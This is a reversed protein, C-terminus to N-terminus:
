FFVLWLLKSVDSTSILVQGCAGAYLPWVNAKRDRLRCEHFVSQTESPEAFSTSFLQSMKFIGLFIFPHEFQCFFPRSSKARSRLSEPGELCRTQLLFAASTPTLGQLLFLANSKYKFAIRITLAWKLFYALYVKPSNVQLSSSGLLHFLKINPKCASIEARSNDLYLDIRGAARARFLTNGYKTFSSQFMFNSLDM